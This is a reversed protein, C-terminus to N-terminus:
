NDYVLEPFVTNWDTGAKIDIQDFYDRYNPTGLKNVEDICNNLQGFLNFNQKHLNQHETLKELVTNKISNPLNRCQLDDQEMGCQNITFDDVGYNEMFFNQTDTLHVASGIFFVSNLRWTFHTKILTDLNKLFKNWDAGRRIYNYREGMADASMTVLVNPFERLEKIIQNDANYMMNTNIRVQFSLDHRLKKLLRLNHNIMTPEGGSLYIEKLTEQNAVIYDILKDATENPTHLVEKGEEKAISSSQKSWCTVCKLDCLSSWHLDVGQLAFETPNDYNIDASKFMSNYLGRLFNYSNDDDVKNEYPHCKRCNNDLIDQSLNQKIGTLASNSLIDEISDKKLDGLPQGGVVCTNVNGSMDVKFHSWPVSCFHEAQTFLFFKRKPDMSNIICDRVCLNLRSNALRNQM